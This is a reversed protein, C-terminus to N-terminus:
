GAAPWCSRMGNSTTPESTPNTWHQAGDYEIGVKFERYGMDIRWEDVRIQTQPRPLGGDILVLRTRTEKPSEAGADTVSLVRRLQVLGRAGPHDAIVDYVSVPDLRTARGLADVRIVSEVFPGRRGLDFATRAPTTVNIGDVTTVEHGLLEDRHTVIKGAPKGNRRFMEAPLQADIWETGYLAAASQGGMTAQRGSWLWAAVARTAATLEAAKSLYVDRYIRDNKSLLTRPGFRGSALAETGLFPQDSRM